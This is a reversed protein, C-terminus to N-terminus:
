SFIVIKVHEKKTYFKDNDQDTGTDMDSFEILFCFTSCIFSSIYQVVCIYFNESVVKHNKKGTHIKFEVTINM